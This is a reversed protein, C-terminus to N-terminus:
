LEGQTNAFAIIERKLTDTFERKFEVIPSEKMQM